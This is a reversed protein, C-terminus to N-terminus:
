AKARMSARRGPTRASNMDPWVGWVVPTSNGQHALPVKWKVNTQGDWKLLINKEACFGQGTPGRWAPWDAAPAVTYMSTMLIFLPFMRKM